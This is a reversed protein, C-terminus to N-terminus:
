KKQKKVKETIAAFTKLVTALGDPSEKIIKEGDTTLDLKDGYKKPKLKSALWKRTDVRLKSRQVAEKEFLVKLGNKTQVEVFDNTGDDAIDLMDEALADASAEKARAYQQLFDPYTRFWNFITKVTPMKESACVSRLSKGESLEACILDALKKSYKTPRGMKRPAKRKKIQRKKPKPRLQKRKERSTKTSKQDPPKEQQRKKM